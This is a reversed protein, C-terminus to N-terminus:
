STNGLPLNGLYCVKIMKSVEQYKTSINRTKFGLYLAFLLMMADGIVLPLLYRLIHDSTCVGISKMPYGNGDISLVERQWLLPDIIQWCTLIIAQIAIVAVMIYAVDKVGVTKRVFNEAAKFVLM